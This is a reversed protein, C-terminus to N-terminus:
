RSAIGEGNANVGPSELASPLIRRRVYGDCGWLLSLAAKAARGSNSNRIRNSGQWVAQVGAFAAARDVTQQQPKKGTKTEGNVTLASSGAM